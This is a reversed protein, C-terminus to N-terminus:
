YNVKYLLFLMRFSFYMYKIDDLRTSGLLIIWMLTIFHVSHSKQMGYQLAPTHIIIESGLEYM